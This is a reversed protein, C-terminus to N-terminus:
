RRLHKDALNHEFDEGRGKARKDGGDPHHLALVDFGVPFGSVGDDRRSIQDFDTKQSEDLLKVPLTLM